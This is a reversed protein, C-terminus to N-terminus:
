DTLVIQFNTLGKALCMELAERKMCSPVHIVITDSVKTQSAKPECAKPESAKERRIHERPERSTMNGSSKSFSSRDGEERSSPRRATETPRRAAEGPRRTAESTEPLDPKVIGTRSYYQDNTEDPHKFQCCNSGNKRKCTEGFSCQGIQLESLSHAFTCKERTCVSWEGSDSKKCFHCAKTCVLGKNEAYETRPKASDRAPTKARSHAAKTYGSQKTPGKNKSVLELARADRLAKSAKRPDEAEQVNEIEAKVVPKSEHAAEDDWKDPTTEVVESKPKPSVVKSVQSDKSVQADKSAQAEKPTSVKESVDFEEDDSESDAKTALDHEVDKINAVANQRKL